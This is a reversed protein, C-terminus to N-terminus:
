GADINVGMIRLTTEEIDPARIGTAYMVYQNLGPKGLVAGTYVAQDVMINQPSYAPAGTKTVVLKDGLRLLNTGPVTIT